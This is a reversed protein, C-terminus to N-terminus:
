RWIFDNNKREVVILEEIKKFLKVFPETIPDYNPLKDKNLLRYGYHEDIYEICDMIIALNCDKKGTLAKNITQMIRSIGGIMGILIAAEVQEYGIKQVLITKMEARCVSVYDDVSDVVGCIKTEFRETQEKGMNRNLKKRMDNFRGRAEMAYSRFRRKIEPLRQLEEILDELLRRLVFLEFSLRIANIEKQPDKPSLM